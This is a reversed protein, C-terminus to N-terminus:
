SSLLQPYLLRTVSMAPDVRNVRLPTRRGYVRLPSPRCYTASCCRPREAHRFLSRSTAEGGDHGRIHNAVAPQHLRVLSPRQSSELRAARFDKLWQNGLVMSADNLKHAVPDQNLEGASDVGDFAGDLQLLAHFAGVCIRGSIPSDPQSDPDIEAVHHDLAATEVTVPDTNRGAD